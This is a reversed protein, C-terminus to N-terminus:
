GQHRGAVAILMGALETLANWATLSAENAASLAGMVEPHGEPWIDYLANGIDEDTTMIRDLCDFPLASSLAILKGAEESISM